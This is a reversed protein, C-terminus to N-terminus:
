QQNTINGYAINRERRINIDHLKKANVKGKNKKKKNM